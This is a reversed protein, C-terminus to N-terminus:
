ITELRRSICVDQHISKIFCAGIRKYSLCTLQQDFLTSMANLLSLALNLPLQSSVAMQQNGHTGREELGQSDAAEGKYGSSRPM